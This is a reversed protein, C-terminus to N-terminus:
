DFPTAVSWLKMWLCFLSVRRCSTKQISNASLFSGDLAPRTVVCLTFPLLILTLALSNWLFYIVLRWNTTDGCIKNSSSWKAFCERRTWHESHDNSYNYFSTGEALRTIGSRGPLEGARSHVRMKASGLNTSFLKIYHTSWPPRLSNLRLRRHVPNHLAMFYPWEVWVINGAFKNVWLYSSRRSSRGAVGSILHFQIQM